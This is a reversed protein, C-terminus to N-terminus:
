ESVEVFYYLDSGYDYYCDVGEYSEVFRSYKPQDTVVHECECWVMGKLYEIAENDNDCNTLHASYLKIM